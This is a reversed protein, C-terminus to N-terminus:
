PAVVEVPATRASENGTRDLASVAYRYTKGADIERDSYVPADIPGAIKQFEEDGAARFVNYGAFDDEVNRQWVLEIAGIGPVGALGAPVAPPFEDQPTIAVPASVESQHQDGDIAQVYYRYPTDIVVAADEYESVDSEALRNPTGSESARFIRFRPGGAKWTLRVGKPSNAAVVNEPTALPAQVDLIVLNSWTSAKGKPGTARVALTVQRGIYDFAPADFMIPGPGTAPIPLIRDAGASVRLEVSQLNKLALGETTLLPLTFEVALKDGYEAARLDTVRSPIDVTPPRVDGIYGCGAASSALLALSLVGALTALSFVSTTRDAYAFRVTSWNRRDRQDDGYDELRQYPQKM